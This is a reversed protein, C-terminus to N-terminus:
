MSGLVMRELGFRVVFYLVLLVHAVFTRKGRVIFGVQLLVHLALVAGLLVGTVLTVIHGYIVLLKLLVPLEPVLRATGAERTILAVVGGRPCVRKLSVDLHFMFTPRRINEEKSNKKKGQKKKEKETNM